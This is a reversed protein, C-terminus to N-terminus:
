YKLARVGFSRRRSFPVGDDTRHLPPAAGGVLTPVRDNSGRLETRTPVNERLMKDKTAQRKARVRARDKADKRARHDPAMAQHYGIRSRVVHAHTLLARVPPITMGQDFRVLHVQLARPTIYIYRLGKPPDTFRITALDVGIARAAPYSARISEAIMCHSSDRKIGAAIVEPTLDVWIRPGRPTNRAHPRKGEGIVDEAAPPPTTEDPTTAKKRTRKKM